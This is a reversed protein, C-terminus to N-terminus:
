SLRVIGAWPTARRRVSPVGTSTLTPQTFTVLVPDATAHDPFDVTLTARHGGSIATGQVESYDALRSQEDPLVEGNSTLSMGERAVHLSVRTGSFVEEARWTPGNAM